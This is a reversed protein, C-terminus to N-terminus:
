PAIVLYNNLTLSAGASLKISKCKALANIVCNFKTGANIMVNTCEDPVVGGSWNSPNHWLSDVSGNWYTVAAKKISLFYKSRDKTIIGSVHNCDPYVIDYRFRGRVTELVSISFAGNILSTSVPAMTTDLPYITLTGSNIEEVNGFIGAYGSQLRCDLVTDAIPGQPSQVSSIVKFRGNYNAPLSPAFSVFGNANSTSSGSSVLNSNNDFVKWSISAGAQPTEIGDTGRNFYDVTYSTSFARQYLKYGTSPASNLLFQNSYWSSCVFGEVVPKVTEVINKLKSETYRTTADITTRVFLSDNFRKLFNNDELFAKAWIYSALEYRLLTLTPSNFVSGGFCGINPRNLMDYYTDYFYSHFEDFPHTYAALRNYVEVEAARTMGEEYTSLSMLYDDRFAHISEHCFVDDNPERLVMENISPYYLGAFSITSDRRVNVAINFFPDGVVNKIAPYFVNVYESLAALQTSNWPQAPSNFTYTLSGPVRAPTNNRIIKEKDPLIPTQDADVFVVILDIFNNLPLQPLQDLQTKSYNYLVTRTNEGGAIVDSRSMGSPLPLYVIFNDNSNTRMQANLTEVPSLLAWVFLFSVIGNSIYDFREVTGFRVVFRM